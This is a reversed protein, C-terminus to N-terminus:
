MILSRQNAQKADAVIKKIHMTRAFLGSMGQAGQMERWFVKGIRAPL